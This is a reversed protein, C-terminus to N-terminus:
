DGLGTWCEIVRQLANTETIQGFLLREASSRTLIQQIVALDGVGPGPRSQGCRADPSSLMLAHWGLSRPLDSHRELLQRVDKVSPRHGNPWERQGRPHPGAMTRRIRDARAFLGASEYASALTLLTHKIATVARVADADYVSADLILLDLTLMERLVRVASTPRDRAVYAAAIEHTIRHTALLGNLDVLPVSVPLRFGDRAQDAAGTLDATRARSLRTVLAYAVHTELVRLTAAAEREAELKSLHRTTRQGDVDRTTKMDAWEARDLSPELAALRVLLRGAEAPSVVSDQLVLESQAFSIVHQQAAVSWAFDMSEALHYRDDSYGGITSIAVGIVASLGCAAM